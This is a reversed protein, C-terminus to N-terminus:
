AAVRKREKRLAARLRRAFIIEGHDLGERYAERPEDPFSTKRTEFPCAATFEIMREVHPM